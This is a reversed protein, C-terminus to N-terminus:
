GRSEGRANDDSRRNEAVWDLVIETFKTMVRGPSDNGACQTIAQGFLIDEVDDANSRIQEIIESPIRGARAYEVSSVLVITQRAWQRLDDIPDANM